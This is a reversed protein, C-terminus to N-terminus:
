AEEVDGVGVVSGDGESGSGILRGIDTGRQDIGDGKFGVIEGDDLDACDDHRGGEKGARRM